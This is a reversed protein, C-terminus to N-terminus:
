EHGGGRRVNLDNVGGVEVEKSTVNNKNVKSVSTILNFVSFLKEIIIIIILSDDFLYRYKM